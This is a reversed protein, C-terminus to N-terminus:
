SAQCVQREFAAFPRTSGDWGPIDRRLRENLKWLRRWAEDTDGLEALSTFCIGAREAAELSGRYPTEDFGSLDLPSEFIHREIQFGHRRAFTLGEPLHDRVEAHFHTAGHEAAFHQVAAFLAGGIGHRRWAPEVVVHLWFLGRPEWPDRLAHAYGALRGP